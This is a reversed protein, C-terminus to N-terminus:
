KDSIGYATDIRMRNVAHFRSLIRLFLAKKEIDEWDVMELRDSLGLVSPTHPLEHDLFMSWKRNLSSELGNATLSIESAMLFQLEVAIPPGWMEPRHLIGELIENVHARVMEITSM